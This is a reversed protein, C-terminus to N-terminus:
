KKNRLYLFLLLLVGLVCFYPLLSLIGAEKQSSTSPTITPDTSTPTRTLDLVKASQKTDASCPEQVECQAEETLFKEKADKYSFVPKRLRLNVSNHFDVVWKSFKDRNELARLFADKDFVTCYHSCCEGCPLLFKLSEFLNLAARKHEETPEEPYAFSVAHLFTWASPGWINTKIKKLIFTSKLTPGSVCTPSLRLANFFATWHLLSIEFFIDKIHIKIPAKSVMSAMIRKFLGAGGEIGTGNDPPTGGAVTAEPEGTGMVFGTEPGFLITSM